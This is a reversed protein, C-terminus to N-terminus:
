DNREVWKPNIEKHSKVCYQQPMIMVSKGIFQTVMITKYKDCVDIFKSPPQSWFYLAVCIWLVIIYCLWKIM